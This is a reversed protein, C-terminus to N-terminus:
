KPIEKLRDVIIPIFSCISKYLTDIDKEHLIFCNEDKGFFYCTDPKETISNSSDSYKFNGYYSELIKLFYKKAHEVNNTAIKELPNIRNTLPLKKYPNPATIGYLLKPQINYFNAIKNLDSELPIKIGTEYSIYIDENINLTKSVESISLNLNNRLEKLNEHLKNTPPLQSSCIGTILYDISVNFFHSISFLTKFDPEREGREYMSIASKSIGLIAALTQQSINKATRLTKLTDAFKNM